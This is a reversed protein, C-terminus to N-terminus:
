QTHTYNCVLVCIVCLYLVFFTCVFAPTIVPIELGASCGGEGKSGEDLGHRLSRLQRAAYWVATM